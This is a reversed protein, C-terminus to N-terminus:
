SFCSDSRLFSSSFDSSLSPSASLSVSEASGSVLGFGYTSDVFYFGDFFSFSFDCSASASVSFCVSEASGSVLGDLGLGLVALFSFYVEEFFDALEPEESVGFGM